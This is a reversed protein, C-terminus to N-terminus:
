FYSDTYTFSQIFDLLIQNNSSDFYSAGYALGTILLEVASYAYLTYFCEAM